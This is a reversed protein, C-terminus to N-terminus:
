HSFGSLNEQITEALDMINKSLGTTTNGYTFFGIGALASVIGASGAATIGIGVPSAIGITCATLVIGATIAVAAGLLMMTLGLTKWQPSPHGKSVKGLAILADINDKTPKNNPTPLADHIIQITHLFNSHDKEIETTNKIECLKQYLSSAHEQIAKKAPSTKDMDELSNIAEKLIRLKEDRISLTDANHDIRTNAQCNAPANLQKKYLKQIQLSLTDIDVKSNIVLNFHDQVVWPCSSFWDKLKEACSREHLTRGEISEGSSTMLRQAIMVRLPANMVKDILKYINKSTLLGAKSMYVFCQSVHEIDSQDLNATTISCIATFTNQNLVCPTQKFLLNIAEQFYLPRKSEYQANYTGTFFIPDKAVKILTELNQTNESSLLSPKTAILKECAAHMSEFISDDDRIDTPIDYNIQQEKLFKELLQRATM